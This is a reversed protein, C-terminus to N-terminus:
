DREVDMGLDAMADFFGPFSVDVHEAGRVTTTGEAALAAVSLAMVIRHDHRGDVTAGALDSESGHVTLVDPEETTEAGLEGLEEAMASVRDTEKYRVHECNEIRTDGDAVAGLAAITPLLDPTDGVDVTVGSLAAREVAIEGAERDWDVAAGMEEVVEVIAADGQASPRAGEIRVTEGPAAAVAGAGLLYSISSFDGPVAYSGGAPEYSQGGPVSFGAAGTAGDLPDGAADVPTAEVGFDALLELTIDVYPASKLETTLEVEVGEDTVAGAMLLATVYQSSVDGPIAVEGGELPGTVVLPAQGNARTSEARVGLDGLADLLPGQPRSRLSGDGTLVTTGDALAAAATVLRMTTGSNACDIVDDPVAPRGGFGEVALADAGALDSETEAAGGTSADDGAPAVSGGFATVARATARTDASILPSEVTAGDSYGAALLARHTYSKSPPARATGRLESRTVHVDM